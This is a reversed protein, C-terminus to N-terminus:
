IKLQKRQDLKNYLLQYLGMKWENQLLNEVLYKLAEIGFQSIILAILTM